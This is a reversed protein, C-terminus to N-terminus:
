NNEVTIIIGFDCINLKTTTITPTCSISKTPTISPTPSITIEDFPYSKGTGSNYLATIESATLARRWYGLEDIKGNINESAIDGGIYITPPNHGDGVLSTSSSLFAGNRYFKVTIISGIVEKTMTVMYWVSNNYTSIASTVGIDGEYYGLEFTNKLYFQPGSADGLINNYINQTQSNLNIWASMTINDNVAITWDPSDALTIYQSGNFGMCTNIKGSARYTGSVATSNHGNVSDVITGSAEDLKWYAVLNSLLTSSQTTPTISPTKTPTISISPTISRTRSPTVSPTRYPTVSPTRSPMVIPTRSPTISPTRSTIQTPTTSSTISPTKSISISSTVSISPTPTISITPTPQLSFPYSRGYGSNYLDNIENETLTRNWFGLEDIKGNINESAIDGGIYLTPPNHGDGVLSTSSSLFVGNRYFKVTTVSGIVEKTVTVMYWVSNNYTSAISTTGIDGEFYGLEFANSIYFQPGSADGLINNYRNQTQSNLNIWASMTINASVAITWDPSDALTIYQSGNFNMCSNIKGPSGYTGSVAISNHGNVSDVITGSAEDLKWYAVLNLSLTSLQATPTVSLTKTPTISISPTISQTRSPTVSRTRSPTVSLTISPTKTPTTSITTSLSPIVSISLTPTPTPTISPSPSVSYDNCFALPSGNNYLRLIEEITLPRDWIGVEDIDGIFYQSPIDGMAGIRFTSNEGYSYGINYGFPQEGSEQIGNIYLKIDIGNSTLVCHVWNGTNISTTSDIQATHTDNDGVRVRIKSGETTISYGADLSSNIKSVVCMNGIVTTKFWASLTLQSVNFTSIDGINVHGEGSLTIGQTISGTVTGNNIGVSDFAKISGEDLKWYGLINPPFTCGGSSKLTYDSINKEM